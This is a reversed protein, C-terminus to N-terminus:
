GQPRTWERRFAEEPMLFHSAFLNAEDEQASDEEQVSVDYVGLHLLLHRLEHAASFIWHEVALRDWTNAVVAPGGDEEAVSLGLFADRAVEVSFSRTWRRRSRSHM